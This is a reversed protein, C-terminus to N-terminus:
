TEKKFKILLINILRQKETKTVGIVWITILCISIYILCSTLFSVFSDVNINIYYCIGFSISGVLLCPLLIKNVAVNLAGPYVRRLFIVRILVIVIQLIASSIFVWAPPYGITLLLYALPLTLLGIFGILFQYLAIKGTAQNATALPSSLSDILAEILMIKCFTEMHSSHDGIWMQLVFDITLFLPLVIVLMLYFTVRSGRHLLESLSGHDNTAYKKVIQPSIASSFNQSFTGATTRVTSAIGHAANMIPGFFINLIVGIGQTKGVWAASGFLNWSSFVSLEKVKKKDWLPSFVCEPYKRKSYFIYISNVLTTGIALFLSYSILKDWPSIVLCVCILIKIVADLIALRGFIHMDEHAMIATMFPATLLGFVTTFVVFQFIINAAFLRDPELNMYSNIFWLGLVEGVIIIFAILILYLSITTRFTKKLKENEGRGLEYTFFRQSGSSVVGSIFTIFTLLGGILAFIGYDSEGLTKM